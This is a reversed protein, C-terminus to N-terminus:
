LQRRIDKNVAKIKMDNRDMKYNLRDVQASSDDLQGGILEGVGRLQHLAKSMEECNKDVVQNGTSKLGAVSPPPAASASSKYHDSSESGRSSGKPMKPDTVENIKKKRAFYNAIGGFPSKIHRMHQKSKDLNVHMEDLRRETRDLAEAQRELEEATDSGMNLCENLTRLSQASSEEMRRNALQHRYRYEGAERETDIGRDASYGGGRGAGYDDRGGYGDKGGGSRNDRSRSGGGFSPGDDDDFPNRANAGYSRAAM